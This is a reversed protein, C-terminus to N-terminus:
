KQVVAFGIHELESNIKTIFLDYQTIAISRGPGTYRVALRQVPGSDSRRRFYRVVQPLATRDVDSFLLHQTIGRITADALTIIM